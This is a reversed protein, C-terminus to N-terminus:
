EPIQECTNRWELCNKWLIKRTFKNNEQMCQAFSHLWAYYRVISSQVGFNVAGKGFPRASLGCRRNQDCIKPFFTCSIQSDKRYTTQKLLNKAPFPNQSIKQRQSNYHTTYQIKSSLTSIHSPLINKNNSQLCSPNM